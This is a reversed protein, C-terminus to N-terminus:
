GCDTAGGARLPLRDSVRRATGGFITGDGLFNVSSGNHSTLFGRFPAAMSATGRRFRRHESPQYIPKGSVGITQTALGIYEEFVAVPTSKRGITCSIHRFTTVGFRCHDLKFVLPSSAVSQTSGFYALRSLLCERALYSALLALCNGRSGM